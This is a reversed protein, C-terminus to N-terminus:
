NSVLEVVGPRTGGPTRNYRHAVFYLHIAILDSDKLIDEDEKVTPQGNTWLALAGAKLIRTKYKAPNSGSAPIKTNRDSVKVPIGMFKPLSGDNADVLLPRGTSDKLKLLDGYVKSHVAMLVISNQEDGFKLKADVLSDWNVTVPVSANWVDHVNDTPLSTGAADILVSDWARKSMEVFQRAAEKYPDAYMAKLQAWTTIEVAKGFHRVTASEDTMTLAVPTLSDGDTAIEDLEGLSNFYPVQVTDGGKIKGGSITNVPLSNNQVVAPSGYLALAVAVEAQIAEMLIATNILDSRRTVAM